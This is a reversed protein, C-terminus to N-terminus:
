PQSCQNLPVVDTTRRQGAIVLELDDAGVEFKGTHLTRGDSEGTYVTMSSEFGKPRFLTGTSNQVRYTAYLSEHANNKVNFSLNLEVPGGPEVSEWTCSDITVVLESPPRVRQGTEGARARPTGPTIQLRPAETAAGVGASNQSGPEAAAGGCAGLFASAVVILFLAMGRM